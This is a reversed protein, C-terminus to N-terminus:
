DEGKAHMILYTSIADGMYKAFEPYRKRIAIIHENAPLRRRMYASGPRQDKVASAIAIALPRVSHTGAPFDPNHSTAKCDLYGTVVYKKLSAGAQEELLRALFADFAEDAKPAGEPTAWTDGESTRVVYGRGDMYLLVYAHNVPVGEPLQNAPQWVGRWLDGLNHEYVGPPDPIFYNGPDFNPVDPFSM